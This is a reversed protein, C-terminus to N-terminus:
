AAEQKPACWRWGVLHSGGPKRYEEIGAETLARKMVPRRTLNNVQDLTLGLAGHLQERTIVGSMPDGDAHEPLHALLYNVVDPWLPTTRGRGRERTEQSPRWVRYRSGPFTDQLFLRDVRPTSTDQGHNSAIIWVDATGHTSRIASRCTAQLVRESLEGRATDVIEERSVEAKPSLGLAARAKAEIATPPLYQVSALIVKSVGVHDNSSRAEGWTLWRLRGPNRILSRRGYGGGRLIKGRISPRRPASKHHVILWEEDDPHSHILERIAPALEDLGEDRGWASLAGARAWHHVTLGRFDKGAQRLIHVMGRDKMKRYGTLVRGSADAVLLGGLDEPWIPSYSLSVNQRRVGDNEQRVIATHGGLDHLTELLKGLDNNFGAARRFEEKTVGFEEEWDPVMLLKGIRSRRLREALAEVVDPLDVGETNRKGGFHKSLPLILHLLQAVSLLLDKAADAREDWAKCRRPRGHLQFERITTYGGDRESKKMLGSHTTFLVSAEEPKTGTAIQNRQRQYTLLAFDRANAKMGGIPAFTAHILGRGNDPDPDPKGNPLTAPEFLDNLRHCFVIIGQDRCGLRLAQRIFASIVTSKGSGCELESLHMVRRQDGLPTTLQWALSRAIDELALWMDATPHQGWASFRDRVDSMTAEVLAEAETNLETM